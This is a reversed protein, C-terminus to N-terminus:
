RPRRRRRGLGVQLPGHRAEGGAGGLLRDGREPRQGVVGDRDRRDREGAHARQAALEARGLAPLALGSRRASSIPKGRPGNLRAKTVVKAAQIRRKRPSSSAQRAAPPRPRRWRGPARSRRRSSAPRRGVAGGARRAAVRVARAELRGDGGQVEHALLGEGRGVQGVERLQGGLGAVEVPGLLEHGLGHGDDCSVPSRRGGARVAGGAHRGVRQGAASTGVLRHGVQGLGDRTAISCPARTARAGRRADCSARSGAADRGSRSACPARRRGPPGAATGPWPPCRRRRRGGPGTVTAADAPRRGRPRCPRGRRRRPASSRRSAALPQVRDGDVLPAPPEAALAGAAAPRVAADLLVAQVDQEAAVVGGEAHEALDVGLEVARDGIRGARDAGPAVRDHGAAVDPEGVAVPRRQLEKTVRNEPLSARGPSGPASSRGSVGSSTAVRPIRSSASKRRAADGRGGSGPPDEQAGRRRGAPRRGVSPGSRRPAPRVARAPAARPARARRAAPRPRGGRAGPRWAIAAASRAARSPMRAATDASGASRRIQCSTSRTTVLRCPRAASPSSDPARAELADVVEVVPVPQGPVAGRRVREVRRDHPAHVVQREGVLVAVAGPGPERGPETTWSEPRISKSKLPAMKQRICAPM